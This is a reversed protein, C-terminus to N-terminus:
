NKKQNNNYDKALNQLIKIDEGPIVKCEGLSKSLIYIHATKEVVVCVRLAEEIDKGVSLAGHNQLFVAKRKGLAIVANKALELSGPLGYQACEIKDGVLQVFDESIGPLSTGTVALVSSYIPHYHIIAGVEDRANYIALHMVTEVSPKRNGEVIEGKKNLVVVDEIKIKDYEMGSPKIYILDTGPDRVSINGWTGITLKQKHLRKGTDVIIKKWKKHINIVM